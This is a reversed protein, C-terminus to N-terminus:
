SVVLACVATADKTIGQTCRPKKGGQFYKRPRPKPVAKLPQRFAAVNRCSSDSCGESYHGVFDEVWGLAPIDAMFGDM